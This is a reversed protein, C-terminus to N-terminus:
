IIVVSDTDGSWLESNREFNEGNLDSLFLNVSPAWFRDELTIEFRNGASKEDIRNKFNDVRFVNNIPFTTARDVAVRRQHGSGLFNLNPGKVFSSLRNLPDRSIPSSSHYLMLHVMKFTLRTSPSVRRKKSEVLSIKYLELELKSFRSFGTQLGFPLCSLVNLLTSNVVIFVFQQTNSLQREEPRWLQKRAIQDKGKYLIERVRSEICFAM